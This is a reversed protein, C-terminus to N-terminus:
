PSFDKYCSSGKTLREYNSLGLTHIHSPHIYTHSLVPSSLSWVYRLNLPLAKFQAVRRGSASSKANKNCYHKEPPHYELSLASCLGSFTLTLVLEIQLVTEMRRSILHWCWAWSFVASPLFGWEFHWEEKPSGTERSSLWLHLPTIRASPFSLNRWKM